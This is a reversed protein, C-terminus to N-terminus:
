GRWPTVRPWWRRVAQRYAAYQQGYAASLTPEEYFIVFGAVVAWLVAAYVLLSVRGLLAAQGVITAIVALYM